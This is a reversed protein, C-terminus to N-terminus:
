AGAYGTQRYRKETEDWVIEALTRRGVQLQVPPMDKDQNEDLKEILEELLEEVRSGGNNQGGANQMAINTPIIKGVAIDPITLQTDGINAIVNSITEFVSTMTQLKDIVTDLAAIAENDAINFDLLADADDMTGILNGAVNKIADEAEKGNDEIGLALGETVYQGIQEFVKSPSNIDLANEAWSKLGSFKESAWDKFDGWKDQIGQKLGSVINRGITNFKEAKSLLNDKLANFKETMFSSIDTGWREKFGSNINKILKEGNSKFKEFKDSINEKLRSIKETFFSTIDSWKQKLGNKLGEILNKGFGAFVTSPSHIGFLDKIGDTIPKFIHERIWNFADKMGESFGHFLGGISDLGISDFFGGLVDIFDTTSEGILNIAGMVLEVLLLGVKVILEKWNIGDFLDKIANAIDTGLTVWDIGLLFDLAGSFFDSITEGVATWDINEIFQKIRDSFEVGADGFDLNTIITHVSTVLGNFGTTLTTVVDEWKINEFLGKISDAIATGLSEWLGETSVFNKLTTVVGNIAGAITSGAEEWKIGDLIKKAKEGLTTGIEEWKIGEIATKAATVIGNVGAIITDALKDWDITGFWSNVFTAISDGISKWLGETTVIGYIINILANWKNAFTQGMLDWDINDFWSKIATGIGSGLEYFDFTTLFTNIINAIANLGDAVTKGLLSWNLGDVLGNLIRAIIEAWKVGMPRFVNNIWDDVRQMGKNLGEAIIAGVGEWDGAAWAAKLRDIWDKITNSLISDIPVDEFMDAVGAGISSGDLDSFYDEPNIEEMVPDEYTDALIDELEDASETAIVNLKDYNGLAKNAKEQAKALKDAAKAQREEAKAQAKARKETVSAMEKQYKEEAKKKAKEYREQAKAEADSASKGASSSEAANVSTKKAITISSKGTLSGMVAAIINSLKAIRDIMMELAPTVLSIIPSVMAGLANKLYLISSQLRSVATNTTNLGNDFLILNSLGASIGSRLKNFAVMLGSIGLAYQLFKKVLGSMSNSNRDVEKRHQVWRVIANKINGAITAARSAVRGIGDVIKPIMAIISKLTNGIRSILPPQKRTEKTIERDKALLTVSKNNVDRLEQNVRQWEESQEATTYDFAKGSDQLERMQNVTNGVEKTISHQEAKIDQETSMLDLLKNTLKEYEETYEGKIVGSGRSLADVYAKQREELETAKLVLNQYADSNTQGTKEMRSMVNNVRSMQSEVRSLEERMKTTGLGVDKGELEESAKKVNNIETRVDRASNVLEDMREKSSTLSDTLQKYEQTPVKTEEEIHSLEEQLNQAKERCQGLEETLKLVRSDKSNKNKNIAKDLEDGLNKARKVADSTDFDLGLIVDTDKEGM